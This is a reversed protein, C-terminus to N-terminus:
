EEYIVKAGHAPVITPDHFIIPLYEPSAYKRFFALSSERCVSGALREPLEFIRKDYCEDGCLVITKGPTKIEIVSSGRSHGGIHVMRIRDTVPHVDSFTVLRASGHLRREADARESEHVRVTANPYYRIGDAHDGHTHTLLVDTIEERRIGYRELLLVPCEHETMLFGHMEDCGADVLMRRGECEILFFLLSIPYTKEHDGGKFIWDEWLETKGYEFATIKINKM